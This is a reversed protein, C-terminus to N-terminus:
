GTFRGSVFNLCAFLLIVFVIGSIIFLPSGGCMIGDEGIYRFLAGIVNCYPRVCLLPLFMFIPFVSFTSFWWFWSFAFVCFLSFTIFDFDDFFLTLFHGGRLFGLIDGFLAFDVSQSIRAAQDPTKEIGPPVVPGPKLASFSMLPTLRLIKVDNKANESKWKIVKKIKNIKANEHNQHKWWKQSKQRKWM